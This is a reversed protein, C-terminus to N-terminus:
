FVGACLSPLQLLCCQSCCGLVRYQSKAGRTRCEPRVQIAGPTRGMDGLDIRLVQKYMPKVKAINHWVVDLLAKRAENTVRGSRAIHGQVPDAGARCRLMPRGRLSKYRSVFCGGIETLSSAKDHRGFRPLLHDPALSHLLLQLRTKRNQPHMWRMSAVPPGLRMRFFPQQDFPRSVFGLRGLLPQGSHRGIGRQDFQHVQGFMAQIM